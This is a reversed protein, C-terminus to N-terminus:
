ESKTPSRPHDKSLRFDADTLTVDTRVEAYRYRADLIEGPLYLDTGAPLLTEADFYLDQRTYALGPMKPRDIRLYHTPRNMPELSVLGEYRITMVKAVSPDDFPLLTREMIRRLGFDTIPNKSKGIKVPFMIDMGRVTPPILPFAGKRERVILLGKNRGAVYVSEYLQMDEADWSFKVSFPEQRFAAEIEERPGLSAPLGVREQRYFKLRYQELKATREGVERLFAVPDAAIRTSDKAYREESTQIRKPGQAAGDQAQPGACGTLNIASLVAFLAAKTRPRSPM